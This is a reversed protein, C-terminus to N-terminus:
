YDKLKLLSKFLYEEANEHGPVWKINVHISPLGLVAKWCLDLKERDIHIKTRHKVTLIMHAHWKGFKPGKEVVAIMHSSDILSLNGGPEIFKILRELVENMEVLCQRVKDRYSENAQQSNVSILFKSVRVGHRKVKKTENGENNLIVLKKEMKGEMKKNRSLIYVIAAWIEGGATYSTWGLDGSAVGESRMESGVSVISGGAGGGGGGAAGTTLLHSCIVLWLPPPCLTHLVGVM